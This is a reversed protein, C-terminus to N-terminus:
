TQPWFQLLYREVRHAVGIDRTLREVEQRGACLVRLRWRGPEPLTFEEDRGDSWVAVEGSSSIFEAEESIDWEGAPAEVPANFCEVRVAATHTHGASRIDVRGPFARLFGPEGGEDPYPVPVVSEDSEQISWGHFTVRVPLDEGSVLEAM